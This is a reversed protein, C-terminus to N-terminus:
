INNLIHNAINLAVNKGKKNGVAFCFLYLERNENKLVAPNDAVGEFILKLRSNYFKGITSITAIKQTKVATDQFINKYNIEKYFEDYWEETGMIENLKKRWSPDIDGTKTLMRNVAIGHPYLVWLDIAKTKAIAEITDWKVQAGYPDLFLVARHSIWDFERCIDVVIQNADGHRIDILNKQDPYENKLENLNKCYKANKEIFIYRNFNPTTDLAVRTSGKLFELGEIGFLNLEEYQKSDQLVRNSEGSLDIQGCGAFGDIYMKCFNQDKLATTYAKLYKELVELKEQTWTGGFRNYNTDLLSNQIM